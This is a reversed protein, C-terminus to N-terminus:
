VSLIKNMEDLLEQEDLPKALIPITHHTTRHEKQEEEKTLLATLFIVPIRRTLPDAELLAVVDGGDMNPMAVDLIILDPQEQKALPVTERSESTTIVEFGHRGLMNKLFVLLEADDDVFLIKKKESM